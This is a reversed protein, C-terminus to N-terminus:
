VHRYRRERQRTRVRSLAPSVCYILWKEQHLKDFGKADGQAPVLSRSDLAFETM